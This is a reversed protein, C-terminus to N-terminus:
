FELAVRGIRIRWDRPGQELYEWTFQGEREVKFQYHLPKPDHDNVLVFSQGPELREFTEFILPHRQPPPIQRIDLTETDMELDGSLIVGRQGAWRQGLRALEDAGLTHQAMVFLVQEEKNFHLRATKIAQLMLRAAHGADKAQPLLVELLHEIESHELRMMQLPGMGGLYPELATFLLEDELHAHSVVAASVMASLAPAAPPNDKLLQELYDFMSYLVAHEGCLADTIKM